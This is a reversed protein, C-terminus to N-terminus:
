SNGGESMKFDVYVEFDSYEKDTMLWGGGTGQVVLTGDPAVSWAEAKGTPQWGALDKGNFVRTFGEYLGAGQDSDDAPRPPSLALLFAALSLPMLRRFM